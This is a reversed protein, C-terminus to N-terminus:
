SSLSLYISLLKKPCRLELVDSVKVGNSSFLLDVTMDLVVVEVFLEDKIKLQLESSARRIEVLCLPDEVGFSRLLENAVIEERNL